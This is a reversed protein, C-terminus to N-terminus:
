SAVEGRDAGGHGARRGPESLPETRGTGSTETLTVPSVANEKGRTGPPGMSNGKSAFGSVRGTRMDEPNEETQPGDPTQGEGEREELERERESRRQRWDPQTQVEMETIQPNYRILAMEVRKTVSHRMDEARAELQAERCAMREQLHETMRRLLRHAMTEPAM